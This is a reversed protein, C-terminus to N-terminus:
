PDRDSVGREYFPWVHSFIHGWFEYRSKLTTWKEVTIFYSKFLVEIKSYLRESSLSISDYNIGFLQIVKPDITLSSKEAYNWMLIQKIDTLIKITM